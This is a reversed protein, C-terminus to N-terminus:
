TPSAAQLDLARMGTLMSNEMARRFNTEALLAQQAQHRRVTHRWTAVLMWATMGSLLVLWFLRQRGAWRPATPRRACCWRM